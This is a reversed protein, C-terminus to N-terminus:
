RAKSMLRSTLRRHLQQEHSVTSIPGSRAPGGHVTVPSVQGGGTLLALNSTMWALRAASDLGTPILQRREDPVLSTLATLSAEVQSTLAQHQLGIQGQELAGQGYAASQEEAQGLQAEMEKIRTGAGRMRHNVYEEVVPKVTPDALLEAWPAPQGPPQDASPTAVPNDGDTPTSM